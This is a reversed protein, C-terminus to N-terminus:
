VFRTLTTAITITAIAVVYLLRSHEQELLSYCLLKVLRSAPLHDGLQQAPFSRHEGAQLMGADKAELM